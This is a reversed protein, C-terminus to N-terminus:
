VPDSGFAAACERCRWTPEDGCVVCGGLEADGREVDAWLEPGPLGYVIPIAKGAGCVPCEPPPPREPELLAQVPRRAAQVGKRPPVRVAKPALRVANPPVRVAKAGVLRIREDPVHYLSASGRVEVPEVRRPNRLHWAYDGEDGTVKYFDVVCVARGFVLSTIDLGEDAIDEAEVSKSAVILLEGFCSRSWTRFEKKKKGCAILEAWPQKVSLALM